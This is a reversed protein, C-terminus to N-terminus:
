IAIGAVYAFANKHFNSIIDEENKIIFVNRNTGKRGKLVLPM